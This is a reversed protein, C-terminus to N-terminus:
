QVFKLYKVQGIVQRLSLIGNNFQYTKQQCNMASQM